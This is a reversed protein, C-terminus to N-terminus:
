RSKLLCYTPLYRRRNSGVVIEQTSWISCIDLRYIRNLKKKVRPQDIATVLNFHQSSQKLHGMDLQSRPPGPNQM